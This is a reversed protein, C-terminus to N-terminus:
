DRMPFVKPQGCCPHLTHRGVVIAAVEAFLFWDARQCEHRVVLMDNM